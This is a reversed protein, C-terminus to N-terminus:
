MGPTFWRQEQGKTNGISSIGQGLESTPKAKLFSHEVRLATEVLKSFDTWKTTSTVSTLIKLRLGRAFMRCGDVEIAVLM